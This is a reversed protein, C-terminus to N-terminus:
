PGGEEAQGGSSEDGPLPVNDILRVQREGATVTVAGFRRGHLSQVYDVTFGAETLAASASADSEANRLLCPFRPARERGPADLLANRSSLALGSAERVTPCPVIETDLFFAEAMDRILLYQQYDKEGFYARQPRVLNLLKMVVTLVGTFHGPRHAGCLERSFRTEEVRYRFDDPYLDAYGPTIVVDVGTQRAVALDDDVTRPYHELDSPNNFQTPNVYVSLVTVDCERVSRQLLRRHGEHLAGMTPVFGITGIIDRRDRRWAALDDYCKV